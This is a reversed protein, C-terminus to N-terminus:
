EGTYFAPWFRKVVPGDSALAHCTDLIGAAAQGGAGRPASPRAARRFSRRSPSRRSRAAADRGSPHLGARRRAARAVRESGAADRHARGQRRRFNPTIAAASRSRRRRRDRGRDRPGRPRRRGDPPDVHRPDARRARDRRAMREPLRLDQHRDSAGEIDWLGDARRYGDFQYRRPHIPERPAPPSLPM